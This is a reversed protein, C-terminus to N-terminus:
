EKVLAGFLGSPKYSLILILLFWVLADVWAPSIYGIVLVEIMGIIIGVIMSGKINGLGGIIMVALGKLGIFPSIKEMRLGVLIASAGALASSVFFTILIVKKTNIGFLQSLTHSEALARMSRGINTRNIIMTLSFMLFFAFALTMLQLTSVMIDGIMINELAIKALFPRPESGSILSALNSLVLAFGITALLPALPFDKKVFRFCSIELLIGCLGAGFMAGIIGVILPQGLVTVIFLGIFGGIMFIEGHALNLLNLVGFVLTYGIAILSYMAGLMLGNILQQLFM